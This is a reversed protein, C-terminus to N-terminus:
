RAFVFGAAKSGVVFAVLWSAGERLEITSLGSVKVFFVTLAVLFADLASFSNLFHFATRLWKAQPGSKAAPLVALLACKGFPALIGIGLILAALGVDGNERLADIIAILSITDTFIYFQRVHMLPLSVAQWLVYGLTLAVIAAGLARPTLRPTLFNSM